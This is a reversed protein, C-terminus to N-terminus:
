KIESSYPPRSFIIQHFVCDLQCLRGLSRSKRGSVDM